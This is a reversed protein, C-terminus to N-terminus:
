SKKHCVFTWFNHLTYGMFHSLDNNITMPGCFEPINICLVRTSINSPLDSIPACTFFLIQWIVQNLCKILDLATVFFFKLLFIYVYKEEHTRLMNGDLILVMCFRYPGWSTFVIRNSCFFSHILATQIIIHKILGLSCLSPITM